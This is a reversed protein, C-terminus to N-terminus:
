IGRPIKIRAKLLLIISLLLTASTVILGIIFSTPLYHLEVKKEHPSVKVALLGDISEVHHKKNGGIRWGSYYNQNLVVYGEGLANVGIVIKNPSWKGIHAEGETGHLYVEGKYHDSGVPVANRPVNVSEVGGISGINRLFTPYLSGWSSYMRKSSPTVVGNKDYSPFEWVQYFEASKITKLPPIPFADKWVPFNVVVLDVLIVLITTLTFLQALVKNAIIQSVYNKVTQFGFGVFISLCLMFVIRFRQAVRMSNYIPLSHLLKWPGLPIRNGFSIWLFVVFCLALLMRRKYHLGMGILFLLFPIIGIYMGNEDMAYSVGKIFGRKEGPLKDIAALTQDRSFLSQGLSGLSFGSYDSIRRPHQRLFEISPFFKIAGLCLTYILIICLLKGVKVAGHKKSCISLLSYLILFLITISLPYAGGGFFMLVLFLGSVLSYRLNYFAKLYFLFVWPLYAVPLFWTMGSTLNLAYMSSLMFVFSSIVAASEDLKYHLALWYVGLMGIVLHLWIEIKIGRVVGFLLILLFSPSLFRSQPNALLVTGGCYYPNWLPFQHYELLTARPVAHYFLHQDWDQIGWNDFHRFILLTFIFAIISFFLIIYVKNQHLKPLNIM